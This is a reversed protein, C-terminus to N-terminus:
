KRMYKMFLDKDVARRYADPGEILDNQLLEALSDDLTRMDDSRGAQMLSPIMDIQGERLVGPLSRDRVLVECAPVRENSNKKPLLHEVVVAQFHEVLAARLPVSRDAPLTDFVYRVVGVASTGPLTGLVLLGQAAADLALALTEAGVMKGVAVVDVDQNALARLAAQYSLTHVGVDRQTVVSRQNRHRFEVPDDLVLVHCRRKKNIHDIMAAMTTSKGSVPPSAILVLGGPLEALKQLVHPLRLEELTRVAAPLPRFIAAQGTRQFYYSCRYASKGNVEYVFDLFRNKLYEQRRADAIIEMTYKVLFKEDLVPHEEDPVLAGDRYYLPKEGVMLHLESAGTDVLRTLMKDIDSM